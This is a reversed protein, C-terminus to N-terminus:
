MKDYSLGEKRSLTFHNRSYDLLGEDKMKGLEASMASRDVSLYDALEQRNFPIDFDSTGRLIAQASLYSLLKERTTRKTIHEMKQMLAINKQALIKMMNGIIKTHFQCSRPCTTLIKKYDLLLVETREGAMVSVPIIETEACCFAEGFVDGPALNEIITRNGWYDEKLIRLSGSVVIGTLAAHDGATFVFEHKEYIQRRASLCNLLSDIDQPHIGAFLKSHNM